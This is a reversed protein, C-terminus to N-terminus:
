LEAFDVHKYINVNSMHEIFFKRYEGTEICGGVLVEGDDNYSIEGITILTRGTESDRYRFRLECDHFFAYAIKKEKIEM